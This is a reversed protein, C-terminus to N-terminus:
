TAARGIGAAAKREAIERRRREDLEARKQAVREEVDDVGAVARAEAEVAEAFGRTMDSARASGSRGAKDWPIPAEAVVRKRMADVRDRGLRAPYAVRVALAPPIVGYEVDLQSRALGEAAKRIAEAEVALFDAVLADTRAPLAKQVKEALTLARKAEREAAEAQARDQADLDAVGSPNGRVLAVADRLRQAPNTRSLM